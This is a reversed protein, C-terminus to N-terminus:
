LGYRLEIWRAEWIEKEKARSERPIISCKWEAVSIDTCKSAEAEAAICALENLRDEWIKEVPGGHASYYERSVVSIDTCEAAKKEVLKLLENLLRM